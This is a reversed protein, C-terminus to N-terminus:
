TAQPGKPPLRIGSVAARPPLSVTVDSRFLGRTTHREDREPSDIFRARKTNISHRAASPLVQPWSARAQHFLSQANRLSILKSRDGVPASTGPAGGSTGM